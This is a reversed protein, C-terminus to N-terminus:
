YSSAERQVKHVSLQLRIAVHLETSEDVIVLFKSRHKM